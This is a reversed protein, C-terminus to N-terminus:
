LLKDGHAVGGQLAVVVNPAKPPPPVVFVAAIVFSVVATAFVFM